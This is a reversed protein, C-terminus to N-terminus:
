LACPVELAKGKPKKLTTMISKKKMQNMYVEPQHKKKYEVVEELGKLLYKVYGKSTPLHYKSKPKDIEGIESEVDQLKEVNQKPDDPDSDSSYSGKESDTDVPKEMIGAEEAEKILKSIIEAKTLPRPVSM